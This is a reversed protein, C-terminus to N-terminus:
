EEAQAPVIVMTKGLAQLRRQLAFATENHLLSGFLRPGRFVLQGAFYVVHPFDRAVEACLRELEAVTDTALASRSTAPVGLREALAVYMALGEDTRLRLEEIAQESRFANSDLAGVSLFVLNQFQGPFERLAADYITFPTLFLPAFLLADSKLGM